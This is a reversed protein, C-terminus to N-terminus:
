RGKNSAISPQAKSHGLLVVRHGDRSLECIEQLTVTTKLM